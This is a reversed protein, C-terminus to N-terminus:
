TRQLDFIGFLSRTKVGTWIVAEASVRPFAVRRGMNDEPCLWDGQSLEITGRGRVGGTAPAPLGKRHLLHRTTPLPCVHDEPTKRSLTLSM